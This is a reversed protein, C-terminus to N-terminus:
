RRFEEMEREFAMYEEYNDTEIQVEFNLLLDISFLGLISKADVVDGRKTIANINSPFTSTVQVFKKVDDVTHLRVTIKNDINEPNTPIM